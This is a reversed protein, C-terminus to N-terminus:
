SPPPPTQLLAQYIAEKVADPERLVATNWFRLVRWGHAELWQGRMADYVGQTAHQGGDVEVIFRAEVCAFDVIYPGVPHQRRFRYGAIQRRRLHGWLLREADTMAKRLERARRLSESRTRMPPDEYELGKGAVGEKIRGRQPLLFTDHV